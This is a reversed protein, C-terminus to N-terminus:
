DPLVVGLIERPTASPSKVRGRPFSLLAEDMTDFDGLRVRRVAQVGARATGAGDYWGHGYVRWSEDRQKELYIGLAFERELCPLPIVKRAPKKRTVTRPM